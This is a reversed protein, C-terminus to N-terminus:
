PTRLDEPVGGGGGRGRGHSGRDGAGEGGLGPATSPRAAEARHSDDRGKSRGRPDTPVPGGLGKQKGQGGDRGCPDNEQIPGKRNEAAKASAVDAVAQGKECGTLSPDRAVDAVAQGHAAEEPLDEAPPTASPAIAPVPDQTPRVTEKPLTVAAALGAVLLLAAALVMATLRRRPLLRRRGFTAMPAAARSSEPARAARAMAAVHRAAIEPSPGELLRLRVDRVLTTLARSSRDEGSLIAEVQDDTLREVEDQYDDFLGM